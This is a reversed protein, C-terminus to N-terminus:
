TEVLDPQIEQALKSKRPRARGSKVSRARTPTVTGGEKVIEAVREDVDGVESGATDEAQEVRQDSSANESSSAQPVPPRDWPATTFVAVPMEAVANAKSKARAIDRAKKDAQILRGLESPSGSQREKDTSSNSRYGISCSDGGKTWTRFKLSGGGVGM